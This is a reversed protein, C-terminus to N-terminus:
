CASPCTAFAWFNHYTHLFPPNSHYPPDTPGTWSIWTSSATYVHIAYSGNSCVGPAQCGLYDTNIPPADHTETMASPDNYNSSMYGTFFPTAGFSGKRYLFRYASLHSGDPCVLTRLGQGDDNIYYPYNASAPALDDDATYEGCPNVNEHFVHVASLSSGGEFTGQYTGTQAWESCTSNCLNIWVAHGQLGSLPVTGSQRIYGDIGRYTTTGVYGAYASTVALAPTAGQVFLISTAVLAIWRNARL